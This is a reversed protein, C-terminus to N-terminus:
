HKIECQKQMAIDENFTCMHDMIVYSAYTFKGEKIKAKKLNLAIGLQVWCLGGQQLYVPRNIERGERLKM